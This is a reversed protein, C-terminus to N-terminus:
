GSSTEEEAGGLLYALTDSLTTKEFSFITRSITIFAGQNFPGLNVGGGPPPLLLPQSGCDGSPEPAPTFSKKVFLRLPSIAGRQTRM